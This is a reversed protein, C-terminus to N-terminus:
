WCNSASGTYTKTGLQDITFSGCNTSDSAQADGSDVTATATFAQGANTVNAAVTYYGEDSNGGQLATSVQLSSLTAAYSGNITYFREQALALTELAIKADARRAKQSQTTYLPYAIAAIVAMVAVVVMLEVLTLGAQQLRM